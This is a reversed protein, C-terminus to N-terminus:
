YILRVLLFNLMENVEKIEHFGGKIEGHSCIGLRGPCHHLSHPSTRGDHGPQGAAQITMQGPQGAQIQQPMGHQPAPALTPLGAQSMAVQVQAGSVQYQEMMPGSGPPGQGQGGQDGGGGQKTEDGM